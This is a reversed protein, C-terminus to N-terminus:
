RCGSAFREVTLFKFRGAVQREFVRDVGGIFAEGVPLGVLVLHRSREPRLSPAHVVQWRCRSGGNRSGSPDSAHLESNITM